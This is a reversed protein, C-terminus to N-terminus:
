ATQTHTKKEDNTIQNNSPLSQWYEIERRISLQFKQNAEHQFIFYLTLSSILTVSSKLHSSCTSFFTNAFSQLYTTVVVLSLNLLFFLLFVISLNYSMIAMSKPLRFYALTPSNYRTAYHTVLYRTVYHAVLKKSISPICDSEKSMASNVKEYFNMKNLLKKFKRRHSISSFKELILGLLFSIVLIPM